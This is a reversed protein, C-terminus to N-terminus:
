ICLRMKLCLDYYWTKRSTQKFKRYKFPIKKTKTVKITFYTVIVNVFCIPGKRTSPVRKIYGCLKGSQCIYDTVMNKKEGKQKNKTKYKIHYTQCQYYKQVAALSM